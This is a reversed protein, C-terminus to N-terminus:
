SIEPKLSKLREYLLYMYIVAYPTFFLQFILSLVSEVVPAADPGSVAAVAQLAWSALVGAAVLGLLALFVQWWKGKVYEKSLRLAKMGGVGKDIVIYEAFIYYVGFIVGPIIFLLTWLLTLFGALLSTGLYSWLYSKANAMIAKPEMETARNKVLLILSAQLWIMLYIMYVVAIVIVLVTLLNVLDKEMQGGNQLTRLIAIPVGVAVVLFISQIFFRGYLIALRPLLARFVEWTEGFFQGIAQREPLTPNSRWESFGMDIESDPWNKAKLATRIDAESHGAALQESIFKKVEPHAM